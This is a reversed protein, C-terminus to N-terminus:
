WTPHCGPHMIASCCASSIAFLEWDEAATTSRRCTMPVAAGDVAGLRLRHCRPDLAPCAQYSRGTPQLRKPKFYQMSAGVLGSRADKPVM